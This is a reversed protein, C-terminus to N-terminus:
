FKPEARVHPKNRVTAYRVFKCSTVCSCNPTGPGCGSSTLVPTYVTRITRITRIGQGQLLALASSSVSCGIKNTWCLNNLM